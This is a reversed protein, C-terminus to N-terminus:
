KDLTGHNYPDNIFFKKIRKFVIIKNMKKNQIELKQSCSVSYKIEIM